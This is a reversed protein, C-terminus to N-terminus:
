WLALGRGNHAFILSGLIFINNYVALSRGRCKALYHLSMVLTLHDFNHDNSDM